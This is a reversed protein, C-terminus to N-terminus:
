AANISFIPRLPNLVDIVVVRRDEVGDVARYFSVIPQENQSIKRPLADGCGTPFHRNSSHPLANPTFVNIEYDTIVVFAALAFSNKACQVILAIHLDTITPPHRHTVIRPDKPFAGMVSIVVDVTMAMGLPFM